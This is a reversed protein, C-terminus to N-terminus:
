QSRERRGSRGLVTFLGAVGLMILALQSLLAADIEVGSSRLLGTLGLVVFALGFGLAAPDRRPARWKSLKMLPM